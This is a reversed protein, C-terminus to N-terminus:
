SPRSGQPPTPGEDNYLRDYAAASRRKAEEPSVQFDTGVAILMAGSAVTLRRRQEPDRLIAKIDLRM